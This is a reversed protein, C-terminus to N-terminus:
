VKQLSVYTQQKKKIPFNGSLFPIEIKMCLLGVFWFHRELSTTQFSLHPYTLCSLFFHDNVFLYKFNDFEFLIRIRHPQFIDCRINDWLFLYPDLCKENSSM